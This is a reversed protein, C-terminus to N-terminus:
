GMEEQCEIAAELAKSSGTLDISMVEGGETYLTMTYKAAIDFLFDPNDFPIDAGPVDNLYMGRAEADYDQGDLAFQVPYWENEQIDGWAMNFATVYGGGQVRDFGIRVVSGDNFESQILCGDGLSPDIMVDWYDSSGWHELSQALAPATSVAGIFLAVTITSIKM